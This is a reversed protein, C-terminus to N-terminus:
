SLTGHVSAKCYNLEWHTWMLPSISTAAVPLMRTYVPYTVPKIVVTDMDWINIDMNIARHM